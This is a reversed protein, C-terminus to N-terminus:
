RWERQRHDLLEGSLARHHEVVLLGDSDAQV